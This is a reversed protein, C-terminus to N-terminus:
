TGSGCGAFVGFDGGLAGNHFCEGYDCGWSLACQWAVACTPGQAACSFGFEGPGLPETFCNDFLQYCSPGQGRVPNVGVAVTLFVITSLHKLTTTM